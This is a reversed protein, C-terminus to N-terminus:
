YISVVEYGANRVVEMLVNDPIDKAAEVFATKKDLDVKARVGEISNLAREVHAACHGCMMGQIVLTKQMIEEKGMSYCPKFFRLRLANTVVCLSSISMAAAAFAPNLKWGLPVYFLGAALPIGIVNYFFALFLNEKINKLVAASLALSVGIERLDDRMLVIDATEAAVDTGTHFSIGVQARALAPADNVGDGAMAVQENQAQLYAIVQEKEHPLVEAQVDEISLQAAMERAASLRDGTLLLIKKGLKKLYLVAEKASPRLTDSFFLTGIYSGDKAFFLPIQGPPCVVPPVFIRWQAMAAANGGCILRNAVNGRVGLGETFAFDTVPQLVMQEEECARVIARAFAHESPKEVAGAWQLVERSTLGEAASIGAVRMQGSTLTGTKDLVVTTVCCAHEFVSASKILIGRRAAVGMGVMIATPTALGLACPCSIVLVSVACSVAFGTEKGAIMWALFTIFSVILVGPVFVASVRDALQAVPARGSSAEEVLRTIQALLTGQGTQRILVEIYGSVLLTGARVFDTEKKEVPFSEGTLVSEDVSGHGTKIIGDAALREGARVVLLDEKKLSSVEVTKEQGNQKIVAASPMLRILASIARSTKEKARTELWKGFTILTVIMAASEFYLHPFSSLRLGQVSQWLSFLVSAGAGVAVLSDMTPSFHFLRYFGNIFFSRNIGLVPLTFLLQFFVQYGFKEELVSPYFPLIKAGMTVYLLPLLFVCSFLFRKKLRAAECSVPPQKEEALRAGYGAQEVAHVLAAVSVSPAHEATMKNQLLMVQVSSVGQLSSVAKRIHEACTPCTM